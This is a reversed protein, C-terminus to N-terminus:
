SVNDTLCDISIDGCTILLSKISDLGNLFSNFNGSPARYLTVVYINLATLEPKLACTEMDQEKCYKSLDVNSYNYKKMFLSGFGVM